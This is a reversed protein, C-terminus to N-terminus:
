NRVKPGYSFLKLSCELTFLTTFLLNCYSLIDVFWLPAHHFKMMLSITNLIILFLIFNEFPASTCLRWGHYRLSISVTILEVSHQM